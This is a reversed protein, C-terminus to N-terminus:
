SKKLSDMLRIIWKKKKETFPPYRLSNETRLSHSLISKKHSFVAFSHEGHYAGIGSTQVGGFPLHPNTLHILTDNICGGGYSIKESVRRIFERDTSFVYLSLPHSKGVLEYIEEEREYTLIPLIPGFIEEELLPSVKQAHFFVPAIKQAEEEAEYFVGERELLQKLRFFDEKSVIKPYTPNRLPNPYWQKTKEQLATLFDELISRHVVAYDVAVCTQGGNVLKGFLIRSVSVDLPATEDVIVPSKGGLELVVPVMDEAAKRYYMQGVRKGGTFFIMDFKEAMVWSNSGPQYVVEVHKAAFAEHVITEMIKASHPAKSSLKLLVTNGAAIAGALPIFALQVPYNWPAVILVLGRNEYHIRSKSYFHVLPTSVTKDKMLSKLHHLFFRIESLVLTIETMEAEAGSKGLDLFLAQELEDRYKKVTVYFKELAAKRVDYRRLEDSLAYERMVTLEKM